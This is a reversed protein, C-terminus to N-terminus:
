MIRLVQALSRKWDDKEQEDPYVAVSRVFVSRRIKWAVKRPGGRDSGRDDTEFQDDTAMRAGRRGEM